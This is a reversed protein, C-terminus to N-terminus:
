GEQINGKKLELKVNLPPSTGMKPEGMYLTVHPFPIEIQLEDFIKKVRRQFERKIQWQKLPQTKFRVRIVVASDAFEQLGFIEMPELIYRGYEPDKRLEEGIRKLVEMVQDVDERYAVGIDVVARSYEKTFNTVTDIASYPIVHLDGELGRIEMKRLGISEVLGSRGAVMVWDGVRISDQFLIFLGNIIDKVLTQAGFGVALGVLGAGALIPTTNIGMQDLIVIGGVFTVGIKVTSRAVPILTRAKQSIEKRQFGEKLIFDSFFQSLEIMVLVGASIILITIIRLIIARGLESSIIMVAPVGWIQLVTGSLLLIMFGKIGKKLFAIYRNTKEELGPFREKIKENIAFFRNFLLDSLYFIPYAIAITILSELTTFILYRYGKNFNFLIFISVTWIYLVTIIHWYRIIMNLLSGMGMRDKYKLRKKEVYAKVMRGLQLTFVTLLVPYPLFLIGYILTLSDEPISITLILDKLILYFVSYRLFRLYWIWLYNANEDELPILRKKIDEPGIILNGIEYLAKYLLVSFAFFLMLGILKPFSRFINFTIFLFGWFVGYPLLKIFIEIIHLYVRKISRQSLPDFRLRRLYFRIILSFFLSIGLSLFINILLRRNEDVSLFGRLEKLKQPLLFFLRLTSITSNRFESVVRDFRKFVKEMILARKSKPREKKEIEMTRLLSKLEKLLRERRQQNELLNIMDRLEEESPRSDRKQALAKAQATLFLLTLFFILLRKM